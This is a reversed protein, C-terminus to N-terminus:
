EAKLRLMALKQQLLSREANWLKLEESGIPAQMGATDALLDECAKIARPTDGLIEAYNLISRNVFSRERELVQPLLEEYIALAEKYKGSEALASATGIASLQAFNKDDEGLKKWSDLAKETNGTEVATQIIALMAQNKLSAPATALYKELREMRASPDTVILIKGLEQQQVLNASHAKHGYYLYGGIGVVLVLFGIIITRTHHKLFELLPSAEPAVESKLSDLLGQNQGPKQSM